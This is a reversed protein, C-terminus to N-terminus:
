LEIHMNMSKHNNNMKLQQLTISYSNSIYRNTVYDSIQATKTKKM